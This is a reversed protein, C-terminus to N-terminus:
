GDYAERRVVDLPIGHRQREGLWPDYFPRGPTPAPSALCYVKKVGHAWSVLRWDGQRHHFVADDRQRYTPEQPDALRTGDLKEGEPGSLAAVTLSVGNVFYVTHAPILAGREALALRATVEQEIAADAEAPSSHGDGTRIATVVQRVRARREPTLQDKADAVLAAYQTREEETVEPFADLDLVEGAHLVPAPRDQYFPAGKDILAGAVYDLREPSFVTLDVLARELIACVGTQQNQTALKCFGHGALWLRVKLLDRFREVDGTVVLYVHWGDPPKLWAGTQRSRIASSTSSTALWGVDAFAPLV